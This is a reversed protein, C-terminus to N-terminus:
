WAGHEKAPALALRAALPPRRHGRFRHLVGLLPLQPASAGASLLCSYGSLLDADSGLAGAGSAGRPDGRVRRLVCKCPKPGYTEGALSDAGRRRRESAGGPEPGAAQAGGAWCSGVGWAGGEVRWWKYLGRGSGAGPVYAGGGSPPGETARAVPHRWGMPRNRCLAKLEALWSRM